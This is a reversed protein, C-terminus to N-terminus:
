YTDPFSVQDTAQRLRNVAFKRVVSHQFEKEDSLLRLAYAIDPTHWEDLLKSAQEMEEQLHLM